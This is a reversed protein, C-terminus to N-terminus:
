SLLDDLDVTDESVPTEHEFCVAPAKDNLRVFTVTKTPDNRNPQKQHEVTAQFYKGTLDMPDCDDAEFDNLANRATISFAIMAGENPENQANKLTFKETHKMGKETSLKLELTGFDEDYKVEDVKFVYRGEPIVSFGSTLSIRAM